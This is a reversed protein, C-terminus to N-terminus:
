LRFFPLIDVVREAIASRVPIQGLTVMEFGVRLLAAVEDFVGGVRLFRDLEM